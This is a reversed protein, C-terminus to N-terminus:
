LAGGPTPLCLSLSPLPSPPLPLLLPPSGPSFSPTFSPTPSVPHFYSSLIQFFFPFPSSFSLLTASPSPPPTIFSPHGLTLSYSSFVQHKGFALLLLVALGKGPTHQAPARCGGAEEVGRGEREGQEQHWRGLQEGWM